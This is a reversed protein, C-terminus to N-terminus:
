EAEYVRLELHRAGLTDFAFQILQDILCGHEDLFQAPVAASYSRQTQLCPPTRDRDQDRHRDHNHMFM